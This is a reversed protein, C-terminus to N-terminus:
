ASKIPEAIGFVPCENLHLWREVEDLTKGTFYWLYGGRGDEQCLLWRKAGAKRERDTAEHLLLAQDHALQQVVDRKSRKRM